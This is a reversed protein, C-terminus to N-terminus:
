FGRKIFSFIHLIVDKPLGDIPARDTDRSLQHHAIIFRVAKITKQDFYLHNKTNWWPCIDSSLVLVSKGLFLVLLNGNCAFSIFTRNSKASEVDFTVQDGNERRLFIRDQTKKAEEGIHGFAMMDKQFCLTMNDSLLRSEICRIIDTRSNWVHIGEEPMNVVYEDTNGTTNIYSVLHQLFHTKKLEGTMADYLRVYATGFIVVVTKNDTSIACGTICSTTDITDIYEIISLILGTDISYIRISRVGDSVYLRESDHSIKADAKESIGVIIFCVDNGLDRSRREINIIYIGDRSFTLLRKMDPTVAIFNAQVKVYVLMCLMRTKLNTVRLMGRSTLIAIFGAPSYTVMDGNSVPITLTAYEKTLSM